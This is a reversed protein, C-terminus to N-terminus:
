MAIGEEVSVTRNGSIRHQGAGVFCCIELSKCARKMTMADVM